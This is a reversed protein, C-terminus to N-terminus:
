ANVSSSTSVVPVDLLVVPLDPACTKQPKQRSTVPVALRQKSPSGAPGQGELGMGPTGLRQTNFVSQVSGKSLQTCRVPPAKPEPVVVSMLSVPSSAPGKTSPLGCAAVSTLTNQTPGVNLAPGSATASRGPGPATANGPVKCSSNQDRRRARWRVRCDSGVRREWLCT